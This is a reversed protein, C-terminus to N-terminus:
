KEFVIEAVKKAVKESKGNGVLWARMSDHTMEKKKQQLMKALMSIEEIEAPSCGDFHNPRPVSGKKAMGLKQELALKKGQLERAKEAFQESSIRRQLYDYEWVKLERLVELRELWIKDRELQRQLFLRWSVFILTGLFFLALIYPWIISVYNTSLAAVNVESKPIFVLELDRSESVQQGDITATVLITYVTQLAQLSQKEPPKVSLFFQKKQADFVFNERTGFDTNVLVAKLDNLASFNKSEIALVFDIQQVTELDFTKQAPAILKFSFPKEEPAISEVFVSGLHNSEGSEDVATVFYFYNKGAVTTKDVFFLESVSAIVRATEITEGRYVNFSVGAGKAHQWSLRIGHEVFEANLGTPPALVAFACCALLVLAFALLFFIKLRM